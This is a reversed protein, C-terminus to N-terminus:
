YRPPKRVLLRADRELSPLVCGEPCHRYGPPRRGGVLLEPSWERGCSLCECKITRGTLTDTITADAVNLTHGPALQRNTM